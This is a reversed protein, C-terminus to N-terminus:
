ATVCAAAAASAVRLRELLDKAAVQLSHLRHERQQPASSGHCKTEFANVAKGTNVAHSHAHLLVFKSAACSPKWTASITHQKGLRKRGVLAFTASTSLDHM